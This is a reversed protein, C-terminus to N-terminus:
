SFHDLLRLPKSSTCEIVTETAVHTFAAAYPLRRLQESAAEIVSEQSYGV